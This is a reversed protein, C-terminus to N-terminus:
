LVIDIHHEFELNPLMAPPTTSNDWASKFGRVILINGELRIHNVCYNEHSNTFERHSFRLKTELTEAHIIEWQRATVQCVIYEHNISQFGWGKAPRKEALVEGTHIDLLQLAHEHQHCLITNDNVFVHTIGRKSKSRWVREGTRSDLCFLGKDWTQAFVYEGGTSVAVGFQFIYGCEIWRSQWQACNGDRFWVTVDTNDSDSASKLAVLRITGGDFAIERRNNFLRYNKHFHVEGERAARMYLENM